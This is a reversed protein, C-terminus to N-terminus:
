IKKTQNNKKNNLLKQFDNYSMSHIGKNPLICGTVFGDSLKVVSNTCTLTSYDGQKEIWTNKYPIMESWDPSPTLIMFLIDQKEYLNLDDLRNDELLSNLNSGWALFTNANEPFNGKFDEELRINLGYEYADLVIGKVFFVNSCKSYESVGELFSLVACNAALGAMSQMTCEKSGIANNNQKNCGFATFLMISVMVAVGRQLHELTKKIFEKMYEKNKIPQNCIINIYQEWIKIDTNLM